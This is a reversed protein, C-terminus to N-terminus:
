HSNGDVTSSECNRRSAFPALWEVPRNGDQVGEDGGSSWCRHGLKGGSTGQRHGGHMTQRGLKLLAAEHLAGQARLLQDDAGAEHPEACRGGIRRHAGIPRVLDEDREGV